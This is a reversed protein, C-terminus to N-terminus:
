TLRMILKSADMETLGTKGDVQYLNPYEGIEKMENFYQDAMDDIAIWKGEFQNADLWYRIEVDRQGCYSEANIIKPTSGIFRSSLDEGGGSTVLKLLEDFDHFVRWSSSFVVHVEPCSRLIRWFLELRCFLSENVIPYPHLVGDFDLFILKKHMDARMDM